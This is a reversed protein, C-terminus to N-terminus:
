MTARRHPLESAAQCDLCNALAPDHALRRPDIPEDCDTCLGFGGNRIKVLALQIQALREFVFQRSHFELDHAVDDVANESPQSHTEPPTSPAFGDHVRANLQALEATLRKEFQSRTRASIVESKSTGHQPKSPM